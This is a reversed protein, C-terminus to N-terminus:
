AKKRRYFIYAVVAGSITLLGIFLPAQFQTSTRPTKKKGGGLLEDYMKVQQYVKGNDEVKFTISQALKYNKPAIVEILTYEEDVILNKVLHQQETSVWEDIVNGHKDVVKMHAGALEKSTTADYKTIAVTDFKPFEVTQDKDNIDSHTAVKVDDNYLDEFVVVTKGELVKSSVVFDLKVEGNAEEPVFTTESKIEKGQLDLLPKGTEKDMLTGEIKYEKGVLLGEFSVTDTITIDKPKDPTFDKSDANAKTHVDIFRVTQGEDNIDKHETVFQDIPEDQDDKGITQYLTEFVVVEKGTAVDTSDFTFEVDVSGDKETPTFTTTAVVVGGDKDFFPKGTEKDMLIGEVTYTYGLALDKYEVTDTLTIEGNKVQQEHTGNESKATTGIKPEHVKVTQEKDNLDNHTVIKLGERYLDEFVVITKGGLLSANFTYELDISGDKKDAVFTKEATVPQGDVLIPEGTEKDMLTGKITYEKGVLLGEYKVTDVLTTEEVNNFDKEGTDKNSATTGVTILRNELSYEESYTETSDDKKTFTFTQKSEDLQYNYYTEDENVSYTVGEGLGMPLDSIELSDGEALDYIGVTDGVKYLISGDAPDVIDTDAVVKFAVKGGIRNASDEFSKHITIKGKPAKDKVVVTLLPQGDEDTGSIQTKTIKFSQNIAKLYGKPISVEELNYDGAPLALPVTVSGKEESPTAEYKSSFVNDVVSLRNDSGTVFTDYWKIGVKVWVYGNEDTKITKKVYNTVPQGDEDLKKIKFSASNLSVNKGSDADQKVIKLGSTFPINNIYFHVMKDYSQDIRRGDQLEGYSVTENGDQSVVVKFTDDLEWSETGNEGVKTQKVIYTGVALDNSVAEGREDTKLVAYEMDTGNAKALELATAMDGNAETFYKELVATFEAGVEPKVIESADADTIFKVLTFKAHHVEEKVVPENYTDVGELIGSPTVERVFIEKEDPLRYGQPAKTEEITITGIPFTPLNNSDLYFEDGGIKYENRIKVKGNEDTRLVWMRTPELGLTEPDVPEGGEGETSLHDYYKVTFEAGELSASGQPKNLNTNKDVKGLVWLLPDSQPKDTFSKKVTQGGIVTMSYVHSDLAYNKPQKIEKVYYTAPNLNEIVNSNGDAGITFTGIQNTANADTYLGYQAGEMPGYCDNGDTINPLASSKSIQLSGFPQISLYVLHQKPMMSNTLHSFGTGAFEVMWAAFGYQIPDPMAMIKQYLPLVDNTYLALGRIKSISTGSYALSVLEGQIPNSAYEGYIPTVMDGPGTRGYYLTKRLAVNDVVYPAGNSVEFREPGANVAESCYALAGNSLRWLGNTETAGFGSVQFLGRETIQVPKTNDFNYGVFEPRVERAVRRSRTNTTAGRWSNVLAVMRDQEAKSPLYLGHYFTDYANPDFKDSELPKSDVVNETSTTSESTTPVAIKEFGIDIRSNSSGTLLNYKWVNTQSFEPFVNGNLSAYGVVFGDNAKAEINLTKGEEFSQVFDNDKTVTFVKSEDKLTVSGEGEVHVTITPVNTNGIAYESSQAQISTPLLQMAMTAIVIGKSLFRKLLKM